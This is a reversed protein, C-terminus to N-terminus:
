VCDQFRQPPRISRGFRTFMVPPTLTKNIPSSLLSSAEKAPPSSLRSEEPVTSQIEKFPTSIEPGPKPPPEKTKVLHRRNRRYFRGQLDVEYSRPAVQKVVMGKKWLKQKDTPLPKMRVTDGPRLDPLERTGKNYNHEQKAKREKLKDETGEVIKPQLLAGATPLRTKTRRGFLRQVPSTGISASPTNRWDLIALYPDQGSAKAKTLLRKALKVANEIKGNSQPYHPSSTQHDFQWTSAFEKFEKSVFQPGNDSYLTDPIGHRAFQNKLSKIVSSAHTDPLQNLEFYDSWHDVVIFWDKNDFNFLDTAVHSWPRKPPDHPILPEKQQNAQYTNCTDCKAVCDKIESTMGPWFLVDRAKKLCGEIGIHSSHVKKVMHSRLAGPVIVRNGKFLIGDQITLEERFHFYNRIEPPVEEKTNPWGVRIVHKLKQLSEDSETKERLDALREATIPLFEVMNIEEISKILYEEQKVAFVDSNMKESATDDPLYARSLTDAIFLEKGPKYVLTLNYKQLQLLMRQLRKPASLLPKKFINELPKHDTQVTIERGYVYQDFRTCGHVISLLEKEIQAYNRETSTLARSSFAVPQGEQMITAGLGSESADCQLTVEKANDFYRLVPERTILQKVQNLANEHTADWHWLVDKDLLRRLPETVDSLNPLFKALYTIM